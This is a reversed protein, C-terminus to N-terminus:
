HMSSHITVRFCYRAIPPTKHNTSVDINDCQIMTGFSVRNCLCYRPEDPDIVYRDDDDEEEEEEVKNEPESELGSSSDLHPDLGDNDFKANFLVKLQEEEHARPPYLIIKAPHYSESRAIQYLRELNVGPRPSRKLYATLSVREFPMKERNTRQLFRKRTLSTHKTHDLVVSRIRRLEYDLQALTWHYNVTDPDHTQFRGLVVDIQRRLVLSLSTRKYIINETLKNLKQVHAHADRKSINIQTIICEEWTPWQDDEGLRKNAKEFRIVSYESLDWILKSNAVSMSVGQDRGELHKNLAPIQRGTSTFLTPTYQLKPTGQALTPGHELESPNRSKMSSGSSMNKVFNNTHAPDEAHEDHWKPQHIPPHLESMSGFKDESILRRSRLYVDLDNDPRMDYATKEEEIFHDHIHWMREEFNVRRDGVRRSDFIIDDCFWCSVIEPFQYKFHVSAIHEIWNDVDDIGFTMECRGYGVFECPLLDMAGDHAIDTDEPPAIHQRPSQVDQGRRRLAPIPPM